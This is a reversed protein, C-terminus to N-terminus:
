SSVIFLTKNNQKIRVNNTSQNSFIFLRIRTALFIKKYSIEIFFTPHTMM